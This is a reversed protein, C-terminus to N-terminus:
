GASRGFTAYIHAYLATADVLNDVPVSEDARHAQDLEGPGCVVTPVGAQNRVFRADTTFRMGMITGPRGLAQAYAQQVFALFPDALDLESAEGFVHVAMDYSLFPDGIAEIRHRLSALAQEATTGPLVRRDVRVTCRDAVVNYAVGGEIMGVNASPRGLLPHEEGFDAGHLALVVKAAKEIASVGRHPEGAHAAVGHLTVDVQLLGREAVGIGLGTPEPDLCADGRVFGKELLVATGLGGGAEEDAVLHFVVDCAPEGWRSRRVVDLACIAAAIGGKMDAAGRGYLRGGEVAGGFPDHHWAEPEVPVVDLHGNVILTPRGGDAAGATAVLSVRGPAPEVEIVRAGREELLRRAVDAVARENGPPNSSDAAVLARTVEVLTGVDVLDRVGALTAAIGRLAEGPGTGGPDV